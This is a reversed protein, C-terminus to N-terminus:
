IEMHLLRSRVREQTWPREMVKLHQVLLEYTDSHIVDTDKFTNHQLGYPPYLSQRALNDKVTAYCLKREYM